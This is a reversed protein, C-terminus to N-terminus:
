SADSGGVLLSELKQLKQRALAAQKKAQEYEALKAEYEEAYQKAVKAMEMFQPLATGLPKFLVKQLGDGAGARLKDFGGITLGSEEFAKETKDVTKSDIGLGKQIKDTGLLSMISDATEQYAGSIQAPNRMMNAAMAEGIESSGSRSGQAFFGNESFLLEKLQPDMEGTEKNIAGEKFRPPPGAEIFNRLPENVANGGDKNLADLINKAMATRSVQEFGAVKGTTTNINVLSFNGKKPDYAAIGGSETEGSGNVIPFSVAYGNQVAQAGSMSMQESSPVEGEKGKMMDKIGDLMGGALTGIGVIAAAMQATKKREEALKMMAHAKEKKIEASKAAYDAEITQRVLDDKRKANGTGVERVRAGTDKINQGQQQHFQLTAESAKMAYDFSMFSM